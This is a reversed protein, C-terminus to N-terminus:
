VSHSRVCDCMSRIGDLPLGRHLSCSAMFVYSTGKFTDLYNVTETRIREADGSLLTPVIDTGGLLCVKGSMRDRIMDVDNNEPFHFGECGTSIIEDSLDIEKTVLQGHPHNIVPMGHKHFVDAYRRTWPISIKSFVDPGFLDPNDSAAALIGADCSGDSDAHEVITRLHEYCLALMDNLVDPDSESLMSIYEMGSLVGAKTLPGTVNLVIATDPLRSRTLRYSELASVAKGKPSVDYGSFDRKGELPHTLPVPVGNDPYKMTGGFQEILFAASHTCGIVADQGTMGQFACICRSSLDADMDKGFVDITRVGLVDMGLTMDRLFVPARHPVGGKLTDLFLERGTEEM